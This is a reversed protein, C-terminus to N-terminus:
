PSSPRPPAPETDNSVPDESEGYLLNLDRLIEPKLRDLEQRLQQKALAVSGFSLQTSLRLWALVLDRQRFELRYVFNQTLQATEQSFFLLRPPTACITELLRRDEGQRLDFFTRLWYTRERQQTRSRGLVMAWLLTPHPARAFLFRTYVSKEQLAGLAAEPLM